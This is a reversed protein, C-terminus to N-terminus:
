RAVLVSIDVNHLVWETTRGLFIAKLRSRGRFGLALVDRNLSLAEAPLAEHAEGECWSWEPQLGVVASADELASRAADADAETGVFLAQVPMPIVEVLRAVARLARAAGDIADWGLTIGDIERQDAKVVLTSTGARRILRDVTGGGQGPFREETEGSAGLIVLDHIEALLVLRDVVAGREIHTRCSVGEAACREAIRALIAEAREVFAAEVKEPVVIPEFGLMGAIDEVLRGQIHTVNVVHVGTLSVRDPARRALGIAVEAAAISWPSEDMPVLISYGM